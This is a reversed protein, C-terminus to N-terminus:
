RNVVFRHCEIENGKDIEIIYVGEEFNIISVNNTNPLINGEILLQGFITHIRYHMTKTINSNVHIYDSAPNPYVNVQKHSNVLHLGSVDAFNFGVDDILLRTGFGPQRLGPNATYFSHISLSYFAADGPATYNLNSYLLTYTNAPDTIIIEGDALQNGSSDWLAIQAFASDGNVPFYKYYFGFSAPSFPSFPTSNTPLLNLIGWSSFVSDDDLGVAGAIGTNTTFNWANRLELATNGHFADNTPAYFPGDYVISDPHSVGTSDFWVSM